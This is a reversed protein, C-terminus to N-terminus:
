RAYPIEVVVTVGKRPESILDIGGGLEGMIKYCISLGMGIGKGVEKTTFFPDFARALVDSTMGPGNDRVVVTAHRLEKKEPSMAIHVTSGPPCFDVCNTMLNIFVQELRNPDALVMVDDAIDNLIAIDARVAKMNVLRIANVICTLLSHPAIEAEGSDRAFRHLHDVIDRCRITEDHIVRLYSGLDDKGIEENNHMRNLLASSFGLIATLPNNMEHAVGSALTGISALHASRYLQKRAIQKEAELDLRETVDEMALAITTGKREDRVMAARVNLKFTAGPKALSFTFLNQCPIGDSSSVTDLFAAFLSLDEKALYDNISSGEVASKPSDCFICFLKNASIITGDPKISVCLHPINDYFRQYKERSVYLERTLRRIKLLSRITAVLESPSVPKGLFADACSLGEIKKEECYFATILVIPLFENEGPIAKIRQAATIGDIGKMMVDMVVADLGREGALRVAKEGSDTRVTKYGAHELIECFCKGADPDDDVVLVIEGASSANNEPSNM